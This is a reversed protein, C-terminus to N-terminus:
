SSVAVIGAGNTKGEALFQCRGDIAGSSRSPRQCQAFDNVFLIGVCESKYLGRLSRPQLTKMGGADM